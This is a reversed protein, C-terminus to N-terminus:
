EIINKFMKLYDKLSEEITPKNWLIYMSLAGPSLPDNLNDNQHRKKYREKREERISKDFTTYDDYGYGGFKITKQRNTEKNLFIAEYKHKQDTAKQLKLFKYM